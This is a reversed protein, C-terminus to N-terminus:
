RNYDREYKSSNFSRWAGVKRCLVHRFINSRYENIYSRIKSYRMSDFLPFVNSYEFVFRINEREKISM